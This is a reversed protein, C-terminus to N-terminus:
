LRGKLQLVPEFIWELLTRKELLLDANVLMGPRLPFEQGLAAVTQKDLKVDVRYVPERARSRASASARRGSTAASTRRDHRPVPRLARSPFPRTACCWKRARACSASRARPCSCSVHLGSGKPLVTALPANQPSRSRRANVAINTVIGAMPARIVNERRAEVQALDQKCSAIQRALVARGAHADRDRDHPEDLAAGRRPRARGALAARRLAQLKIEQDTVEDQKQKLAGRLRVERRRAGQLARHEQRASAVRTDQLKMERDIQTSRTRSTRRHAPAAARGAARWAARWQSQESRSTNRPPAADRAARAESTSRARPRAASSRSARSRRPQRSRTAKRSWCSPSAARCRAISSARAGATSRSTARSASAARTNAGCRRRRHAAARGRRARAAHLGLLPVPRAITAEGLFKERQADIAEQRFLKRM